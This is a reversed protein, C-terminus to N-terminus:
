SQARVITNTYRLWELKRRMTDALYNTLYVNAPDEALANRAEEIARDIVALNEELLQITAPALYQRGEALARELDAVAADYQGAALDGALHLTGTAGTPTPGAAAPGAATSGGPILGGAPGLLWFASATLLVLAISAAALQTITFAFRRPPQRWAPQPRPAAEAATATQIRAQIGTWLDRTPPQDELQQALAALDRLEVLTARCEDCDALHQDFPAREAADFDGDLYESLRDRWPDHVNM